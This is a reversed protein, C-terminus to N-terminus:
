STVDFSFSSFSSDFCTLIIDVFTNVFYKIEFLILIRLPACYNEKPINCFEKTKKYWSFYINSIKTTRSPNFRPHQLIKPLFVFFVSFM